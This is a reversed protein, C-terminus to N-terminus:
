FDDSDVVEGGAITMLARFTKPNTKNSIFRSTGDGFQFQVGGEHNSSFKGLQDDRDDLVM